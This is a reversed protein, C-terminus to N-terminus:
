LTAFIHLNQLMEVETYFGEQIAHQALMYSIIELCDAFDNKDKEGSSYLCNYLISHNCSFSIEDFKMLNQIIDCLESDILIGPSEWEYSSDETWNNNSFSVSYLLWM